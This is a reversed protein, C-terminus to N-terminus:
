WPWPPTPQLLEQLYYKENGYFCVYDMIPHMISVACGRPRYVKLERYYNDEKTVMSPDHSRGLICHGLEHWIVLKKNTESLKSWRDKSVVILSPVLDKQCSAVRATEGGDPTDLGRGLQQTFQISVSTLQSGWAEEFEAVYPSFEDEIYATPQGTYFMQDYFMGNAFGLSFLVVWVLMGCRNQNM